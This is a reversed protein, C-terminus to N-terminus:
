LKFSKKVKIEQRYNIEINKDYPIEVVINGPECTKLITANPVAKKYLKEGGYLEDESKSNSFIILEPNILKVAEDHFGTQQGHHSAKLLCCDTIIDKCNIFINEWYPTNRGEGGFLFKRSNITIVFAYSMEDIEIKTKERKTGDEKYHAYHSLAECPSLITIRDETSDWYKRPTDERSTRIVTSSSKEGGLKKYADWDDKHTPYHDFDEPEFDHNLDWFNQIKIETDELFSDLGCIHDQHPHTCIFRFISKVKGSEDKFNSKFYDIVNQYDLNTPDHNIDIMMIRESLTRNERTREPFHVITCDGAGVNLFHIKVSM